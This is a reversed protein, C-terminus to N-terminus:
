SSYVTLIVLAVPIFLAVLTRGLAKWIVFIDIFLGGFLRISDVVNMWPGALSTRIDL